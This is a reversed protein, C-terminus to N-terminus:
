FLVVIYIPQLPTQLCRPLSLANEYSRCFDPRWRLQWLEKTLKTRPSIRLNANISGYVLLSQCAEHRFMTYTAPNTRVITDHILATLTEVGTFQQTKLSFRQLCSGESTDASYMVSSLRDNRPMEVHIVLNLTEFNYNHVATCM